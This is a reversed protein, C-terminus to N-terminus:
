NREKERDSKARSPWDLQWLKTMIHVRHPITRVFPPAIGVGMTSGTMGGVLGLEAM